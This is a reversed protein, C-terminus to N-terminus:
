SVTIKVLRNRLIDFDVDLHLKVLCEDSLNFECQDFLAGVM